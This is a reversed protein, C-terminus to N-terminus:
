FLSCIVLVIICSAIQIAEVLLFVKWKSKETAKEEQAIIEITIATTIAFAISVGFLIVLQNAIACVISAWFLLLALAAVVVSINIKRNTKKSM